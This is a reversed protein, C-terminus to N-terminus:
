SDAATTRVKCQFTAIGLQGKTRHSPTHIAEQAKGGEETCAKKGKDSRPSTFGAPNRSGCRRQACPVNLVAKLPILDSPREFGRLQM